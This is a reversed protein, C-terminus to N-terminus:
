NTIYAPMKIEWIEKKKRAFTGRPGSLFGTNVHGRLKAEKRIENALRETFKNIGRTIARPLNRNIGNVMNQVRQTEVQITVM